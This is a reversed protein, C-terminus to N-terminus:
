ESIYVRKVRQSIGTMIEYAITNCQEAVTHIGIHNGFIEVEDGAQVRPIGTVDLMTMDMCVNGIVPALQGRVWMQGAGNGLQRRYGDAYGIRVTAIVSDRLVKGKRNYGVTEGTKVAKVQAVTSRLATAAQLDLTGPKVGYLGIGLRVMDFHKDPHRTIAATNAAHKIFTYGLQNELINCAHVFAATQTNTFADEAPDESAVLHTFVSRVVLTQQAALWDALAEVEHMSFGLRHMGTDLKIHVPYGTIGATNCWAAFATLIDFSYLEPELNNSEITEFAGPEPNMVMVPLHVGSRRLTAGEDAYAVGLYDVKSFQLLRAVEADGSGYGFAKVMVMMKTAPKLQSRYQHLNHAIATLNIELVTQHAQQQLLAAIKEFAFVRAGKILITENNFATPHFHRIFEDTTHYKEIIFPADTLLEAELSQSILNGIAIVRGIHNARLSKAIEAYLKEPPLDNQQFDSLIVTKKGGASQAQLFALAIELSSLDASYSDNIITCNNVGKKLELRMNVTHLHQLRADIVEDPVGLLRCVAICHIANEVSANDTFPIRFHFHGTLQALTVITSAPQRDMATIRLWVDDRNGWAYKINPFVSVAPETLGDNINYILATEGNNFLKLKEELKQSVSKFGESHADGINTLVGITPQIIRALNEMEGPQSIGAEFIGLTHTANMQWVSLPVGTQSNYSKPSRVINFDDRLMLNLWEKVITKGNSGTIGIVPINFQSRHYAALNQLAAIADAAQLIGAGPFAKLDVDETVVFARVGQQYADALFLHGNRRQSRIAFFLTQGPFPIKRSDTALHTITVNEGTLPAQLIASIQELTYM